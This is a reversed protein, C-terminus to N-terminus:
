PHLQEVLQMHLLLFRLCSLFYTFSHQKQKLVLFCHCLKSIKESWDAEKKQGTHEKKVVRSKKSLDAKKSLEGEKKKGIQKKKQSFHKKKVLRNKEVLRSRKQGTEKKKKVLRSINQYTQKKKSSGARTPGNAKQRVFTCKEIM